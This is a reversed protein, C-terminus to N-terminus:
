ARNLLDSVLLDEIFLLRNYKAIFESGSGGGAQIQGSSTGVALDALFTEETEGESSAIITNLGHTQCFQIAELLETVTSAGVLRIISANTVKQTDLGQLLTASHCFGDNSALQLSAGLADYLDKSGKFDQWALGNQLSYLPYKDYIKQYLQIMDIATKSEMGWQYTESLQNYFKQAEANIGIVFLGDFGTQKLAQMIYDFPEFVDKYVCSIGGSDAYTFIKKDAQLLEKYTHFITLAYELATRFNGVAVPVLSIGQFPLGNHEVTGGHAIELLPFPISVSASGQLQAIIEFLEVEESAAQAKCLAMSVALTVNAGLKSRQSTEDLQSLLADGRDVEPIKGILVPAIVTDIIHIAKQFGRGGCRTGGDRLVFFGEEEMLPDSPVSASVLTGDELVIECSLAPFGSANFIERGFVKEIKM